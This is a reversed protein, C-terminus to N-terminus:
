IENGEHIANLEVHKGLCRSYDAYVKDTIFTKDRELIKGSERIQYASLGTLDVLDQVTYPQLGEIYLYKIGMWVKLLPIWSRKHNEVALEKCIKIMSIGVSIEEEVKKYIGAFFYDKDTKDVAYHIYDNQSLFELSTKLNERNSDTKNIELYNLFEDYSGRYVQLPMMMIALFTAFDMNIMHKLESRGLMIARNDDEKYLTIARTNDDEIIVYDANKGKGVKKVIIHEKNMMARQFKPFNKSVYSESYGFKECIEKINM